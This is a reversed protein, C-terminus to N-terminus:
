LYVQELPVGSDIKALEKTLTEIRWGAVRIASEEKEIKYEIIERMKKASRESGKRIYFHGRSSNPHSIDVCDQPEYYEVMYREKAELDAFNGIYTLVLQALAENYKWCSNSSSDGWYTDQLWGARAIAIQSKCHYRRWAGLDEPKEDAYRWRFIDGDKITTGSITAAESM